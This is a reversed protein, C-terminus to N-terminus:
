DFAYFQVEPEVETAITEALATVLAAIGDIRENSKKKSPKIAEYPDLEAVVNDAMWRLVGNGYHRLTRNAILTELFKSPPSLTKFGQRVPVM